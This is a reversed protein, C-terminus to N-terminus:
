CYRRSVEFLELNEREQVLELKLEEQQLSHLHLGLHLCPPAGQSAGDEFWDHEAGAELVDLAVGATATKLIV